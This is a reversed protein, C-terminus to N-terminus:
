YDHKQNSHVADSSTRSREAIGRRAATFHALYM